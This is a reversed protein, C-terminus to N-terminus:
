TNERWPEIFRLNLMGPLAEKKRREMQRRNIFLLLKLWDRYNTLM